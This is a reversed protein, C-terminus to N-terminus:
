TYYEKVHCLRWRVFDSKVDINGYKKDDIYVHTARKLVDIPATTLMKRFTQTIDRELLAIEEVTWQTLKAPYKGILQEEEIPNGLVDKGVEVMEYFEVNEFRM